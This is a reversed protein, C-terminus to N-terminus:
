KVIPFTAANSFVNTETVSGFVIQNQHLILEAAPNTEANSPVDFSVQYIGVTGQVLGASNVITATSGSTQNSRPLLILTAGSSLATNFTIKAESNPDRLNLEVSVDTLNATAAVNPDANIREALRSVITQLTDGSETTYSYVTEALTITVTQGGQPTGRVLVDGPVLPLGRGITAQVPNRANAVGARLFPQEFEISLSSGESVSLTIAISLPDDPNRHELLIRSRSL